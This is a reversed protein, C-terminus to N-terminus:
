IRTSTRSQARGRATGANWCRHALRLLPRCSPSCTESRFLPAILRRQWRWPESEANLLGGRLAEGFVDDYVPQKSFDEIGDLLITQIAEPDMVFLTEIGLWRYFVVPERYFGESWAAIPNGTMRLILAPFSLRRKPPLPREAITAATTV